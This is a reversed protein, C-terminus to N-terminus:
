NQGSLHQECSGFIKFVFTYIPCKDEHRFLLSMHQSKQWSPKKESVAWHKYCKLEEKLFFIGHRNVLKKELVALHKFM